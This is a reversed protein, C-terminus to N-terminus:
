RNLADEAAQVASEPSTGAQVSEIMASLAASAAREDPRMWSRATLIQRAFVARDPDTELAGITARLAPITEALGAYGVAFNPDTTVTTVFHWAEAGNRSQSWVALGAYSPYNVTVSAMQPMPAVGIRLAPNAARLAKLMRRYGFIMPLKGSAFREFASPARNNWIHYASKANGFKAYFSLPSAAGRLSVSGSDNRMPVGSQMMLLALVDSAGEITADTGGIAASGAGLRKALDQFDLWNGPPLPIGARDFLDKNYILALTDLNVPLAYLAGHASFDQMVAAPFLAEAQAATIVDPPAPLMKDGHRPLWTNVTMFIDPGRGSAMGNILEAEYNEPSVATYTVEVNPNIKKYEAIVPAWIRDSDFGWLTLETKRTGNKFGSITGTGLLVALVALAALAAWFAIARKSLPM